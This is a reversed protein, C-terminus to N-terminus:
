RSKRSEAIEALKKRAKPVLKSDPYAKIFENLLKKADDALGIQAFSVALWYSSDEVRDSDPYDSLVKQFEIVANQYKGERSYGEAIQFQAKACAADGKFKDIYESFLIRSVEWQGENFMKMALNFFDKKKEPRKIEPLQSPTADGPKKQSDAPKAAVTDASGEKMKKLAAELQDIRHQNLDNRGNLEMMKQKISDQELGVNAVDSGYTKKVNELANELADAKEKAKKVQEEVTKRDIEQAEKMKALEMKAARIEEQMKDGDERSVAWFCGQVTMALLAAAVALFIILKSSHSRM